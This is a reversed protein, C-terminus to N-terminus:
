CSRLRCGTRQDFPPTTSQNIKKKKKKKQARQGKKEIFVCLSRPEPGRQPRPSIASGSFSGPDDIIGPLTLGVCHSASVITQARTMPLWAATVPVHFTSPHPAGANDDSKEDCRNDSATTPTTSQSHNNITKKKKQPTTQKIPDDNSQASTARNITASNSVSIPKVSTQAKSPNPRPRLWQDTQVFNSGNLRKASTPARSTNPRPQLWQHPQGLNSGNIPNASTTTSSHNQRRPQRQFEPHIYTQM